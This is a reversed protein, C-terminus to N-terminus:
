IYRGLTAIPYELPPYVLDIVKTWDKFVHGGLEELTKFYKVPNGKNVIRQKLDRINLDAYENVPLYPKSLTIRAEESLHGFKKDLHEPQRIYFHAFDCDNLFTAHIIELETLSNNQHHEQLVWTYGASAAVLYNRDLSTAYEPFSTVKKPLPPSDVPRYPGYREGLLCLFYPSCKCIYGLNLRLLHGTSLQDDLVGWPIDVPAFRCGRMMYLENIQPYIKKSLFEREETFDDPTSCIFPKVSHRLSYKQPPAVAIVGDDDDILHGVQVM